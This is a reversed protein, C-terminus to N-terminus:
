NRLYYNPYYTKLTLPIDMKLMGKNIINREIIISRKNEIDITNELMEELIVSDFRKRVRNIITTVSM